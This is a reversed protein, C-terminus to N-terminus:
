RRRWPRGVLPPQAGTVFTSGVYGTQDSQRRQPTERVKEPDRRFPGFHCARRTVILAILRVSNGLPHRETSVTSTGTLDQLYGHMEQDGTIGEHPHGPGGLETRVGEDRRQHEHRARGRGIRATRRARADRGAGRARGPEGPVSASAPARLMAEQESLEHETVSAPVPDRTWTRPVVIVNSSTRSPRAVRRTSSWGMVQVSPCLADAPGKVSVHVSTVLSATVTVTESPQHSPGPLLHTPRRRFSDPEAGTESRPRLGNVGLSPQVRGRAVGLHPRRDRRVPSAPRPLGVPERTEVSGPEPLPSRGAGAEHLFRGRLQLEGRASGCPGDFQTATNAVVHDM